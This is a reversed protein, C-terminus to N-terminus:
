SKVFIKIGCQLDIQPYFIELIKTQVCAELAPIQSTGLGFQKIKSNSKTTKLSLKGLKNFHAQPRFTSPMTTQVDIQPFLNNHFQSRKARVFPLEDISNILLKNYSSMPGVVEYSRRDVNRLSKRRGTTQSRINPEVESASSCSNSATELRSLHRIPTKSSEAM